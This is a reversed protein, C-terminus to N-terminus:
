KGTRVYTHQIDYSINSQSPRLTMSNLIYRM